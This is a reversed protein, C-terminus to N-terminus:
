RCGRILHTLVEAVWRAEPLSVVEAQTRPPTAMTVPLFTPQSKIQNRGVKVKWKYYSALALGHLKCYSGVGGEHLPAAAVHKIWFEIKTNKNNNESKM